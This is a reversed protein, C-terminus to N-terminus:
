EVVSVECLVDGIMAPFEDGVMAPFEDALTECCVVGLLTPFSDSPCSSGLRSCRFSWDNLGSLLLGLIKTLLEANETLFSVAACALCSLACCSWSRSNLRM